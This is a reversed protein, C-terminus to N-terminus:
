EVEGSLRAADHEAQIKLKFLNEHKHVVQPGVATALASLAMGMPDTRASPLGGGKTRERLVVKYVDPIAELAQKLADKRKLYFALAVPALILTIELVLQAIRAAQNIDLNM